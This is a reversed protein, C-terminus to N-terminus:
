RILLDEERSNRLAEGELASKKDGGLGLGNQLSMASASPVQRPSPSDQEVLRSTSAEYDRDEYIPPARLPQQEEPSDSSGELIPNGHADLPVPSDISKRYKHYTFLAIGCITIAVGTINIPTLHDGFVWTSILITTVEKFIGAISM